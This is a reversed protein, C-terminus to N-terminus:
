HACFLVYVCPQAGASSRQLTGADSVRKIIQAWAGSPTPASWTLTGCSVEFQPADGGDLIRSRYLM